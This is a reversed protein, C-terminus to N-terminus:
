GHIIALALLNLTGPFSGQGFFLTVSSSTSLSLLSLIGCLVVQFATFVDFLHHLPSPAYLRPSTGTHHSNSYPVNNDRVVCHPLYNLAGYKSLATTIEDV